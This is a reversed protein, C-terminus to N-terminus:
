EEEGWDLQRATQDVYKKALSRFAAYEDADVCIRSADVVKLGLAAFFRDVDNIKIGLEGSAIRGITTEHCGVAEAVNVNKVAALRRLIISAFKRSGQAQVASLTTM